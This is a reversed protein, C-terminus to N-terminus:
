ARWLNGATGNGIVTTGNIKMVDANVDGTGSIALSGFNAPASSALLALNTGRMDANVACNTVNVVTDTAPDFNNLGDLTTITGSISYGSKDANTGVTVQGTTVTIALDGFNTPASSALLASDTGRMDTNTTCTAVTTVNAVVETAPDFDNLGSIQAPITTSTDTLITDVVTDITAIDASVSAGAPAGLRTFGDGSQPFTTEYQPSATVAGTGTFTFTIQDGDTEAQTPTYTHLGNGKHVPASGAGATQTGNDVTVLVSVSGTFASGDAITTMQARAVQGAVNKKM